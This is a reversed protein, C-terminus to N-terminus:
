SEKEPQNMNEIEEAIEDPTYPSVIISSAVSEGLNGKNAKEKLELISAINKAESSDMKGSATETILQALQEKAEKAQDLDFRATERWGFKTKLAFFLSANDGKLAKKYLTNQLSTELIAHGEEIEKAFHKTFTEVQKIEIQFNGKLLVMVGKHTNGEAIWKVVANRHEKNIVDEFKKHKILDRSM